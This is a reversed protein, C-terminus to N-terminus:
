SRRFGPAARSRYRGRVLASGGLFLLVLGGALQLYIM